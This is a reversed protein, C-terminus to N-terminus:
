RRWFTRILDPCSLSPIGVKAALQAIATKAAVNDFQIIVDNTTLLRGNDHCTVSLSERYSGSVAQVQGTFVCEKSNTNVVSVYDGPRIELPKFYKEGTAQLVQFTLELCVSDSDDSLSPSGVRNRRM